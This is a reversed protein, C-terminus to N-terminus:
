GCLKGGVTVCFAMVLECIQLFYGAVDGTIGGFEKSAMHRCYIFVLLASVFCLLGLYLNLYLMFVACAVLYGLMTIRTIRKKAQNSFTAVLGSNKALPFTVVALGSFARSLIFSIVLLLMNSSKMDYWIGFSLLYYGICAMIAFAGTHPDNLIELKKEVTGYSKLADTTDLFGDMHIGGTIVIPILVMIVTHFMRSIPLYRGVYDWGFIVAGLVVGILPFFCMVYRMNEEEWSAKPMPVKSYMSFAIIFSNIISKM